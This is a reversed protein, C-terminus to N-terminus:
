LQNLVTNTYLAFFATLHCFVNTVFVVWCQQLYNVQYMMEDERLKGTRQHYANRTHFIRDLDYHCAEQRPEVYM